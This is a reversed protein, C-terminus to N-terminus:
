VRCLFRQAFKAYQESAENACRNEGGKLRVNAVRSVVFILEESLGLLCRAQGKM